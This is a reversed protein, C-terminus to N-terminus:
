KTENSQIRVEPKQESPQESPHESMPYIRPGCDFCWHKDDTNSGDGTWTWGDKKAAELLGTFNGWYSDNHPHYTGCHDCRMLRVSVERDESSVATRVVM